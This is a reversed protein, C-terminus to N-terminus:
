KQLAKAHFELHREIFTAIFFYSHNYGERFQLDLKQGVKECARAFNEPLLQKEGLFNDASGQEIMIDRNAYLPGDRKLMLETADYARWSENQSDGSGGLYGGFCKKGWACNVPNCIPAFASVSRFMDPNKLAIILAGHGGMSHGCISKRDFDVRGQAAAKAVKILEDTIYSYMNYHKKYEPQTADVYFGAGTGFDYADDEHPAGAGRPSTDPVLIALGLEAAAKYPMAKNVFNEDTCSLGSLWILLPAADAEGGASPPTILHFKAPLSGLVESTHEFREVSCGFCINRSLLKVGEFADLKEM